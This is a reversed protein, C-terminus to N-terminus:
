TDSTENETGRWVQASGSTYIQNNKLRSKSIEESNHEGSIFVIPSIDLMLSSHRFQDKRFLFYSGGDGIEPISSVSTYDPYDDDYDNPLALELRQHYKTFYRLQHSSTQLRKQDPVFEKVYDMSSIESSTFYDRPESNLVTDHSIVPSTTFSFVILFLLLATVVTGIDIKPKRIYREAFFLLGYAIPIGVFPAIFLRMRRINLASPLSSVVPNPILIPMVLLALVGITAIEKKDSNKYRFSGFVTLFITTFIYFLNRVEEYMTNSRTKGIVGATTANTTSNLSNYIIIGVSEVIETAVFSWYGVVLALIFATTKLVPRPQDGVVLMAITLLLLIVTFQFISVQHVTITYLVFLLGVLILRNNKETKYKYLIYLVAIFGVFSLVRTVVYRGYHLYIPMISLVIIGMDRNSRSFGIIKTLRHIFVFTSCFIIPLVFSIVLQNGTALITSIESVHIHFLPFNIYSSYTEGRPIHGQIDIYTTLSQHYFLDTSGYYLPYKMTISYVQILFTSIVQTIIYKSPIGHLVQVFMVLVILTVLVFYALPQGQSAVVSVALLTVLLLYIILYIKINVHYRSLSFFKIDAETTDSIHIGLLAPLGMVVLGQFALEYEGIYILLLFLSSVSLM